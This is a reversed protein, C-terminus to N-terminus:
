EALFIEIAEKPTLPVIDAIKHADGISFKLGDGQMKASFTSPHMGLAKAVAEQTEKNEKLKGRLKQINTHM